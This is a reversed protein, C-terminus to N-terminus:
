NIYYMTLSIGIDESHILQDVVDGEVLKLTDIMMKAQKLKRFRVPRTM